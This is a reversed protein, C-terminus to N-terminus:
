QLLGYTKLDAILTGLVDALEETTTADANYARVPTVNTPTYASVLISPVTGFFGITSGDHNLAGDIEINVLAAISGNSITLAGDSIAGTTDLNGAQFDIDGTVATVEFVPYYTFPDPVVTYRITLKPNLSPTVNERSDFQQGDTAHTGLILWGYNAQDGDVWDQVTAIGVNNRTTGTYTDLTVGNRCDEASSAFSNDIAPPGNPISNYHHTEDWDSNLVRHFTWGQGETDVNLDVKAGVVIAAAPIVSIDFKLLGERDDGVNVDVVFTADTGYVTTPNADWVFSDETGSYGATPLVGDQYSAVTPTYTAVRNYFFLPYRAATSGSGTVYESATYYDDSDTSYCVAEGQPEQSPHSKSYGTNGGGVYSPLETPTSSLVTFITDTKGTDRQFLYMVDYSKILIELGNPSIDGGTANGTASVSSVDPIDFMEGESVLTQTGAYSASHALSYVTPISERKTIIYMDGTDPDVLLTESDRHTPTDGGPFACDIKEIDGADVTGNSGTITPELIRYIILDIGSGRSNSANGNNGFDGLYVYETGGITASALDEYDVGNIGSLTWQGKNSADTIDVTLLLDVSGDSQAWLHGANGAKQVPAIGSIEQWSASNDLNGVSVGDYFANIDTEPVYATTQRFKFKDSDSNDVYLNWETVDNVTFSNGEIIGDGTLAKLTIDFNGIDWDATMPVTADALLDGGGLTQWSSTGDGDERLFKTGGGEGTSLVATGEVDTVENDFWGANAPTSLILLFLFIFIAILRKM